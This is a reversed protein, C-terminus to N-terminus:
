GNPGMGGLREESEGVQCHVVVMMMMMSEESHSWQQNITLKKQIKVVISAGSLWPGRSLRRSRHCTSLGVMDGRVDDADGGSRTNLFIRSRL